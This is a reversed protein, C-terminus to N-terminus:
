SLWFVPIFIPPAVLLGHLFRKKDPPLRPGERGGIDM